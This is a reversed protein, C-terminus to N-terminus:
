YSCKESVLVPETPLPQAFPGNPGATNVLGNPPPPQLTTVPVGLTAAIQATFDPPWARCGPLGSVEATPCGFILLVQLVVTNEHMFSLEYGIARSLACSIRPAAPPLARAAQYLHLVKATDQATMQFPAVRNQEVFGSLRVVILSTPAPLPTATATAHVVTAAPQTRASSGCAALLLMALAIASSLAVRLLTRRSRTTVQKRRM